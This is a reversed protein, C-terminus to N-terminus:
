TSHSRDVHVLLTLPVCQLQCSCSVERQRCKGYDAYIDTYQKVTKALETQDADEKDGIEKLINHMLIEMASRQKQVETTRQTVNMLHAQLDANEARLENVRAEIDKEEGKQRKKAIGVATNSNKPSKDKKSVSKEEDSNRDKRKLSTQSSSSNHADHAPIYQDEPKFPNSPISNDALTPLSQLLDFSDDPNLLLWNLLEESEFFVDNSEALQSM